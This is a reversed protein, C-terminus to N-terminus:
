IRMQVTKLQTEATKRNRAVRAFYAASIILEPEPETEARAGM